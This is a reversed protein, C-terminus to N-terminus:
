TAWGGSRWTRPGSTSPPRRCGSPNVEDIRLESKSAGTNFEFKRIPIGSLDLDAEAAGVDLHLDMPVERSLWVELSSDISQRSNFSRRERSTIGIDLRGNDYSHRPTVYEEDFDFVARYLVDPEGRGIVLKGAGYGVDVEIHDEDTVQRTWTVTKLQVAHLEATGALLLVVPLLRIM